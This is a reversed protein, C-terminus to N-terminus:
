DDVFLALYESSGSALAAIEADSRPPLRRFNLNSEWKRPIGVGERYGVMWTFVGGEKLLSLDDPVVAELPFSADSDVQDASSNKPVYGLMPWLRASFTKNERDVETVVGQFAASSFFTGFRRVEEDKVPIRQTISSAKSVLSTAKDPDDSLSSHNFEYRERTPEAATSELELPAENTESM